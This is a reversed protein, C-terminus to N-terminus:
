LSVSNVAGLAGEEAEGGAVTADLPRGAYRRRLQRQSHAALPLRGGGYRAGGRARDAVARWSNVARELMWCPALLSSSAPFVSAGGARRRGVEAIGMVAVAGVAIATLRRRWLAAALVPGLGLWATMRLPMAFDDYAQRVRQSAFHGTSPPRRAVYLDLPSLVRGGAARVTRILELNEFLANGDYGGMREFFSRRISLTGPFDSAPETLDGSFVRNLLTRATDWRAHWALPHFYNQPRVLEAEGLLETTRALAQADYRVDDDAIVIRENRAAHMGTEVGNVKGMAYHLRLDPRLHRVRPGFAKRHREFLEGPSGDVVVMDQVMSAISRVYGALEELGDDDTWRIPLVYSVPQADAGM